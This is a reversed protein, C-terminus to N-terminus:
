NDSASTVEGASGMLSTVRETQTRHKTWDLDLDLWGVHARIDQPRM